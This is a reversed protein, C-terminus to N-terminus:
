SCGIATQRRRLSQSPCSGNRLPSESRWVACFRESSAGPTQLEPETRVRNSSSSLPAETETWTLQAAKFHKVRPVVLPAALHLRGSCRCCFGCTGSGRLGVEVEIAWNGIEMYGVSVLLEPRAARLLKRWSVATPLALVSGRVVLPLVTWNDCQAYGADGLASVAPGIELLRELVAADKHDTQAISAQKTFARRADKKLLTHVLVIFWESVM